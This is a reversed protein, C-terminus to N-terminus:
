FADATGHFLVAKIEPNKEAEIMALRITDYMEGTLANKKHPRNLGIRLVNNHSDLDIYKNEVM